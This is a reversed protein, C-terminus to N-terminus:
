PAVEDMSISKFDVEKFVGDVETPTYVRTSPAYRTDVLVIAEDLRDVGDVFGVPKRLRNVLKVKM